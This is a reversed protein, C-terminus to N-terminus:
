KKGQVGDYYEKQQLKDPLRVFGSPPSLMTGRDREDATPADPSDGPNAMPFGASATNYNQQVQAYVSGGEGCGVEDEGEPCENVGNCVQQASVMRYGGFDDFSMYCVFTNVQGSVSSPPMTPAYDYEFVQAEACRCLAVLLLSAALFAAM